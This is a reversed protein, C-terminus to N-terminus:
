RIETTNQSLLKGMMEIDLHIQQTAQRCVSVAPPWFTHM